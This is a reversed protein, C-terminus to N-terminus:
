FVQNRWTTLCLFGESCIFGELHEAGYGSNGLAGIRIADEREVGKWKKWKEKVIAEEWAKARMLEWSKAEM